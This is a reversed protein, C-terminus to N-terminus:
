NNRLFEDYENESMEVYEFDDSMWQLYDQEDGKECWTGDPWKCITVYMDESNSM